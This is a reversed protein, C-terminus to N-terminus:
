EKDKDNSTSEPIKDQVLKILAETSLAKLPDLEEEVTKPKAQCYTLLELWVEAQEKSKLDPMLKMLETYPHLGDAFLMEDIRKLLKRPRGNPNGTQGPKWHFPKLQPAASM